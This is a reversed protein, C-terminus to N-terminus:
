RQRTASLLLVQMQEARRGAQAAAHFPEVRRRWALWGAAVGRAVSGPVARRCVEPVCLAGTVMAAIAAVVGQADAVSLTRLACLTDWSSPRLSSWTVASRSFNPGLSNSLSSPVGKHCSTKSWNSSRRTFIKNPAAQREKASAKASSPSSKACAMTSGKTMRRIRIIFAITPTHCSCLASFAKSANFFRCFQAACTIRFPTNFGSKGAESSTGPSMTRTLTPSLTGASMRTTLNSVVDTRVSSPASVPSDSVTSLVVSGTAFDALIWSLFFMSKEPVVTELPVQTPTTTAVPMFVSIPTMWLWTCCAASSSSFVGKPCFISAKPSSNALTMAYMQRATHTM